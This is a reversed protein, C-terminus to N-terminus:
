DLPISCYGGKNNFKVAESILGRYIEMGGAPATIHRVPYTFRFHNFEYHTEPWLGMSDHAYDYSLVTSEDDTDFGLHGIIGAGLWAITNFTPHSASMFLKHSIHNRKIFDGLKIDHTSDRHEIRGMELRWRLNFLPDFDGNDFDRLIRYESHGKDLAYMVALIGCYNIAVPWFISCNPATFTVVKCDARLMGRVRELSFAGHNLGMNYTVLVDASNFIRKVLPMAMVVAGRNGYQFIPGTELRVVNFRRRFDQKMNFYTLLQRGHCSALIVLLPKSDDWDQEPQCIGAPWNNMLLEDRIIEETLNM